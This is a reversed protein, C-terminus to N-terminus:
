PLVATSLVFLGSGVNAESSVVASIDAETPPQEGAAAAVEDAVFLSM